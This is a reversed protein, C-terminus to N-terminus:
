YQRGFLELVSPLLSNYYGFLSPFFVALNVGGSMRRFYVVFYLIFPLTNISLALIESQKKYLFWRAHWLFLLALTNREIRGTAETDGGTMATKIAWMIIILVWLQYQPDNFHTRIKFWLLHGTLFLSILVPLAFIKMFWATNEGGLPVNGSMVQNAHKVTSIVKANYGGGIKQGILDLLSYFLNHPLLFAIVLMFYALIIQWKGFYRSILLLVLAVLFISHGYHFMTGMFAILLSLKWRGQLTLITALLLVILGLQYRANIAEFIPVNLFFALVFVVTTMSMTITVPVKDFLLQAIWVVVAGYILSMLLFYISYGFGSFASVNILLATLPEIHEPHFGAESDFILSVMASSDTGISPIHILGVYGCLIIFGVLVRRNQFSLIDEFAFFFPWILALAINTLASRREYIRLKRSIKVKDYSPSLSPRLIQRNQNM